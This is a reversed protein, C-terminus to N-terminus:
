RSAIFAILASLDAKSLRLYASTVAQAEGQNIGFIIVVGIKLLDHLKRELPHSIRVASGVAPVRGAWCRYFMQQRHQQPPCAGM